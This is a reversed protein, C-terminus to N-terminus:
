EASELIRRAYERSSAPVKNRGVRGPGANYAHLAVRWTGFRSKMRALFEAGGNLNDWANFPDVRMAKATAPMLQALGIAGASSRADMRWSSEAEIMALFIGEPVGQKAAAVKAMDTYTLPMPEYWVVELEAAEVEAPRGLGAMIALQVGLTAISVCSGALLPWRRM